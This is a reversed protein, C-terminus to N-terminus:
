RGNIGFTRRIHGGSGNDDDATKTTKKEKCYNKCKTEPLLFRFTVIRLFIM